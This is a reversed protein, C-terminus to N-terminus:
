RWAQVLGIILTDRWTVDDEHRRQTARSDAFWM